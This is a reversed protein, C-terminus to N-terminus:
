FGLRALKIGQKALAGLPFGKAPIHLTEKQGTLPIFRERAQDVRLRQHTRLQGASLFQLPKKGLRIPLLALDLCFSELHAPLGRCCCWGRLSGQDDVFCSIACIPVVCRV